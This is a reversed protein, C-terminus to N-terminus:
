HTNSYDISKQVIVIFFISYAVVAAGVCCLAIIGLDRVVRAHLQAVKLEGAQVAPDIRSWHSGLSYVATPWFCLWNVILWGMPKSIAAAADATPAGYFPQGDRFTGTEDLPATM